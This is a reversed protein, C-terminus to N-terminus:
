AHTEKEHQAEKGTRRDPRGGEQLNARGNAQVIWYLRPLHGRSSRVELASSGFKALWGDGVCARVGGACARTVSNPPPM